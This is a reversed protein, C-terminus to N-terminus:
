DFWVDVSWPNCGGYYLAYIHSGVYTIGEGNIYCSGPTGIDFEDVWKDLCLQPTTADDVCTTHTTTSSFNEILTAINSVFTDCGTDFGTTSTSESHTQTIATAAAIVLADANSKYTVTDDFDNTAATCAAQARGYAAIQVSNAQYTASAQLINNCSNKAQEAAHRASEVATIENTFAGAM